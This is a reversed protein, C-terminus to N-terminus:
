RSKVCTNPSRLLGMMHSMLDNGTRATGGADLFPLLKSTLNVGIQVVAGVHKAYRLLHTVHSSLVNNRTQLEGLM